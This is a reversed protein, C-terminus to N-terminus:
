TEEEEEEKLIRRSSGLITTHRHHEGTINIDRSECRPKLAMWTNPKGNKAIKAFRM